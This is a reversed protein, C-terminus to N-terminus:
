RADSAPRFEGAQLSGCLLALGVISTSILKHM